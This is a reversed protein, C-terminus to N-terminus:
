EVICTKAQHEPTACAGCCSFPKSGHRLFIGRFYHSNNINLTLRLPLPQNFAPRHCVPAVFFPTGIFVGDYSNERTIKV